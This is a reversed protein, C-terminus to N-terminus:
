KSKSPETLTDYRRELVSIRSELSDHGLAVSLVTHRSFPAYTEGVVLGLAFSIAILVLIFFSNM